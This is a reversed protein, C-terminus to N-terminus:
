HAMFVPVTAAELMDRTAGGLIAERFRSHGYAGMVLLDADRDTVHRLLVESVRPLTRALVSVEARVGHRALWQSLMGGPDSREPGHAPPDVVTIDVVAAKQLLPLAKRIAVLAEPSQNWAVVIRDLRGPEPQNDPMILVPCGGEFLAAELVAEDAPGRGEGYPKPLVCIDAFRAQLGILGSIGGLQAVARDVSWRLDEAGLRKRVVAELAEADAQARELTEQYLIASAGAYFYGVQTQDLGLTLADLHADQRRALSIAADLASRGAAQPDAGGTIVFLVTKYTM